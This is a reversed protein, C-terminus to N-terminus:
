KDNQKTIHNLSRCGSMVYTRWGGASRTETPSTPRWTRLVQRDGTRQGRPWHLRLPLSWRRSSTTWLSRSTVTRAWDCTKEVTEVMERREPCSHDAVHGLRWWWQGVLNTIFVVNVSYFKFLTLRYLQLSAWNTDGIKVITTYLRGTHLRMDKSITLSTLATEKAICFQM